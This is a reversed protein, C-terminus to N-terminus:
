AGSGRCLVAVAGETCVLSCSGNKVLHAILAARKPRAAGPLGIKALEHKTFHQSLKTYFEPTLEGERVEFTVALAAAQERLKTKQTDTLPRDNM